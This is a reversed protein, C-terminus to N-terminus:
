VGAARSTHFTLSLYYQLIHEYEDLELLEDHKPLLAGLGILFIFIEPLLSLM